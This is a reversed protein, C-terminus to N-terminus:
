DAMPRDFQLEIYSSKATYLLNPIGPPSVNVTILAEPSDGTDDHMRFNFNGAGNGTLGDALYIVNREPDSVAIPVSSILSGKVGGDYQYLHGQSPVSTIVAVKASADGGTYQLKITKEEGQALYITQPVAALPPVPSTTFKQITCWSTGTANTAFVGWYYTAPITLGTVDYTLNSGPYYIAAGSLDSNNSIYLTYSTAYSASSWEFTFDAGIVGNEPPNLLHTIGPGPLSLDTTLYIGDYTANSNVTYSPGSPTFSIAQEPIIATPNHYAYQVGATGTSNEIGITASIGHARTSNNDVIQRYQIQIINTTEYLIVTFTGMFIPATYFGMNMFQVVLKKNPSAGITTYLIKGTGDIVLDDWFPAIFNNPAGNSPIPDETEDMSSSGFSIMGNSNIYFQSYVNGFFTFNFGINYPGYSEDDAYGVKAINGLYITEPPQAMVELNILFIATVLIYRLKM